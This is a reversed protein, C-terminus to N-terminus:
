LGDRKVNGTGTTPASFMFFDGAQAERELFVKLRSTPVDIWKLAKKCAITDTM